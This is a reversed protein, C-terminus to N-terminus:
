CGPLRRDYVYASYLQAALYKLLFKKIFKIGTIKLNLIASLRWLSSNHTQSSCFLSTDLKASFQNLSTSDVTMLLM